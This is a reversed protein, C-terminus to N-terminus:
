KPLMNYLLEEAKKKEQLYDATREEVLAELNNAYQEMRTLLNDLIDGKDGDRYFSLSTSLSQGPYRGQRRRQLFLSLYLSITYSVMRTETETSLCLPLSLNYLMGDKDRYFSLSISLYLCITYSVM